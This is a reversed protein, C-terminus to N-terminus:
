SKKQPLSTPSALANHAPVRKQQFENLWSQFYRVAEEDTMAPAQTVLRQMTAQANNNELQSIIVSDSGYVRTLMAIYDQM